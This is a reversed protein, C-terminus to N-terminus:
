ALGARVGARRLLARLRSEEAKALMKAKAPHKAHSEKSFDLRGLKASFALDKAMEPDLDASVAHGALVKDLEKSFLEAELSESM